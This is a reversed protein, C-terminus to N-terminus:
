RLLGQKKFFADVHEAILRHGRANPHIGDEINFEPHGAVGELLFPMRKLGYRKALSAYMAGFRRTYDPGYNPPLLMGALVVRLGKARAASIIAALNKETEELKLGRLGDNGGLALFVTHVDAALHWDLSERVAATTAGSVGANRARYPVHAAKWRAELLAPFAEDMTVGLGATLSDGLFLVVDRSPPAPSAALCASALLELLM